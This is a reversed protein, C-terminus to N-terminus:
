RGRDFALAGSADVVKPGLAKDISLESTEVLSVSLRQCDIGVLADADADADADAKVVYVLFTNSHLRNGGAVQIISEPADFWM